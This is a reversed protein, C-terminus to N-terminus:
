YTIEALLTEPTTTPLIRVRNLALLGNDLSALGNNTTVGLKYGTQDAIDLTMDSYRGSPYAVAITDQNLVQDLYAKSTQLEETQVNETVESLNPHNVTHGQFSMGKAKMEILQDPILSGPVGSQVFGTIVNNTAKMDYKTLLPYADTYFDVISDDFTLWVVKQNDPLVNETLIKYAEEPTVTYYGAEKLAKLHSEFVAPDVINNANDLESPSMVHVGHYMLIPLLVAQEQKVWTVETTAQLDTQDETQSSKTQSQKVTSPKTLAKNKQQNLWSLGVIMIVLLLIATFALLFLQKGQSQRHRHSHSNTM